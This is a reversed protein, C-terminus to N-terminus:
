NKLTLLIMTRVHVTMGEHATQKATGDRKVKTQTSDVSNM